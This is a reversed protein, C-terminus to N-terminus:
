CSWNWCICPKALADIFYVWVAAMGRHDDVIAVSSKPFNGHTIFSATPSLSSCVLWQRLSKTFIGTTGCKALWLKKGLKLHHTGMSHSTLTRWGRQMYIHACYDKDGRGVVPEKWFLNRSKRVKKLPRSEFKSVMRLPWVPRFCPNPNVVNHVSNSWTQWVFFVIRM